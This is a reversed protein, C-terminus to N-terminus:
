AGKRRTRLVLIATILCLAGASAYFIPWAPGVGPERSAIFGYLFILAAVVLVGSAIYRM